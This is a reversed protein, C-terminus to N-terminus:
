IKKNMEEVMKKVAKEDLGHAMAGQEISEYASVHCGICHLGYSFLVEMTKPYRSVAEGLMMDKTIKPADAPKAATKKPTPKKTEAMNM